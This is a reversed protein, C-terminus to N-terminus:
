FLEAGGTEFIGGCVARGNAAGNRTISAPQRGPDRTVAIGREYMAALLLRSEPNGNYGRLFVEELKKGSEGLQAM